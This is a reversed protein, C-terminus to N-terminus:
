FALKTEVNKKPLLKSSIIDPPKDAFAYKELKGEPTIKLFALGADHPQLEHMALSAKKFAQRMQGQIKRQSPNKQSILVEVRVVHGGIYGKQSAVVAGEPTPTLAVTGYPHITQNKRLPYNPM